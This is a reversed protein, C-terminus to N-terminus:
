SLSQFCDTDRTEWCAGYPWALDRNAETMEGLNTRPVHHIINVFTARSTVVNDTQSFFSSLFYSIDGLGYSRKIFSLFVTGWRESNGTSKGAM